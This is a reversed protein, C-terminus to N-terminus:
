SPYSKCSARSQLDLTKSERSDLHPSSTVTYLLPKTLDLCDDKDNKLLKINKQGGSLEQLRHLGAIHFWSVKQQQQKIKSKIQLYKSLTYVREKYM